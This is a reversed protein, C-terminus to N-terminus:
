RARRSDGSEEMQVEHVMADAAPLDTDDLETVVVRGVMRSLAEFAACRLHSPQTRDAYLQRLLRADAGRFPSESISALGLAAASRPGPDPDNELVSLALARLDRLKWRGLLLSLAELRVIPEPHLVLAEVEARLDSREERRAKYLADILDAPDRSPSFDIM